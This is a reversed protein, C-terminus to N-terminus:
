DEGFKYGIGIFKFLDLVVSCTHTFCALETPERNSSVRAALDHFAEARKKPGRGGEM